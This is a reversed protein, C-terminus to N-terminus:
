RGPGRAGRRADLMEMFPARMELASLEGDRNADLQAFLQGRLGSEAESLTGNGDVDRVQVFQGGLRAAQDGLRDVGAAAGPRTNTQRVQSRLINAFDENSLRPRKLERVFGTASRLLANVGSIGGLFSM